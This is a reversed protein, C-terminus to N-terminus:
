EAHEDEENSGDKSKRRSVKKAKAVQLRREEDFDETEDSIEEDLDEYEDSQSSRNRHKLEVERLFPFISDFITETPIV